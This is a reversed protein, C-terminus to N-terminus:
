ATETPYFERIVFFGSSVLILSRSGPMISLRRVLNALSSFINKTDANGASLVGASVTRAYAPPNPDPGYCAIAATEAARIEDPNQYNLVQDARYYDVDPPCSGRQGLEASKSPPTASPGPVIRLLTERLKDQDNTFDLWVRGSTTAIAARSNRGISEAFHREAAARVQALEGFNMHIDDFVYAIYRDPLARASPSDARDGGQNVNVHNLSIHNVSFKTIIQPRGQDFLRFDEQRLNGVPRGKSDRVVVAVSVLNVRSTFTVPAQHSTIEPADQTPAGYLASLCLLFAWARVKV